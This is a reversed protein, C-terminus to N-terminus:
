ASDLPRYYISPIPIDRDQLRWTELYASLCRSCNLFSLKESREYNNLKASTLTADFDECALLFWGPLLQEEDGTCISPALSPQLNFLLVFQWLDKSSPVQPWCLRYFGRPFWIRSTCRRPLAPCLGLTIVRSPLQAESDQESGLPVCQTM